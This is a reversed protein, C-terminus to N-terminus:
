KHKGESTLLTCITPWTEFTTGVKKHKYAFNAVNLNEMWSIFQTVQNGCPNFKDMDNRGHKRVGLMPKRIRFANTPEIGYDM